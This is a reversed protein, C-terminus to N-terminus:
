TAMTEKTFAPVLAYRQEDRSAANTRVMVRVAISAYTIATTENWKFASIFANVLDSRTCGGDILMHTAVKMFGQEEFPNVRRVVSDRYDIGKDALQKLVGNTVKDLLADANTVPQPKQVVPTFKIPETTKIPLRKRNTQTLIDKVGYKAVLRQSRAESAGECEDSFVCVSCLEAAPSYCLPSGFCGPKVSINLQM